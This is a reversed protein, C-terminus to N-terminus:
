LFKEANFLYPRIDDLTLIGRLIKQEDVIAFINKDGNKV